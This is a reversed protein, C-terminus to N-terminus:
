GCFSFFIVMNDACATAPDPGLWLIHLSVGGKTPIDAMGMIVAETERDTPVANETKMTAVTKKNKASKSASWDRLADGVVLDSNV